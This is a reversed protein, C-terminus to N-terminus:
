WLPRTLTPGPAQAPAGALGDGTRAFVIPSVESQVPSYLAVARSSEGVVFVVVLEEVLPDGLELDFADGGVHRLPGEMGHFRGALGAGDPVVEIEGYAPHVYRGVYGGLELTAAGGRALRTQRALEADHRFDQLRRDEAKLAAFWNVEPLGLFRDFVWRSVVEPVHHSARNTLVVVGLDDWPLLAVHAQYGDVSGGHWAMLHGRYTAVFWGLAYTTFPIEAPGLGPVVVQPTIMELVTREDAVVTDGFRGRGLFFRVWRALDAATSYMGAAPAAARGQATPVPRVEGDRAVHHPTAVVTGPPPGGIGTHKMGLPALLRAAVLDEWPQGSVAAAAEGAVVYMLNNYLFRQRLDAAPELEDLVALLDSRRMTSRYWVLDHRAMGTRHALLDRPTMRLTANADRLRLGPLLERVPRDLDLRGDEALLGVSMATFGKTVSGVAFVTSATVPRSSAREVVGFGGEFVSADRRVVAVAMGPVDWRVMVEDALHPLLALTEADTRPVQAAGPPAVLLVGLLVMPAFRDSAHHIVSEVLGQSRRPMAEGGECSTVLPTPGTM